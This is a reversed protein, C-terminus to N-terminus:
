FARERADLRAAEEDRRTREATASPKANRAELGGGLEQRGDEHAGGVVDVVVAAQHMKLM